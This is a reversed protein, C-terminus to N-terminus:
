IRHTNEYLAEDYCVNIHFLIKSNPSHNLPRVAHFWKMLSSFIDSKSCFLGEFALCAWFDAWFAFFRGFVAVRGLKFFFGASATFFTAVSGTRSKHKTVLM